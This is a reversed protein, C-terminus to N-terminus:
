KLNVVEVYKKRCHTMLQSSQTDHKLFLSMGEKSELITDSNNVLGSGHYMDDYSIVFATIPNVVPVTENATTVPQSVSQVVKPPVSNVYIWLDPILVLIM